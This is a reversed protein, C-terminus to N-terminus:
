RLMKEYSMKVNQIYDDIIKPLNKLENAHTEVEKLLELQQSIDETFHKRKLNFEVLWQISSPPPVIKSVSFMMSELSTRKLHLTEQLRKELYQAWRSFEFFQFCRQLKYGIAEIIKDDIEREFHKGLMLHKKGFRVDVDVKNHIKIRVFGNWEDRAYIGLEELLHFNPIIKILPFVDRYIRQHHKWKEEGKPQGEFALWKAHEFLKRDNIKILRRKLLEDVFRIAFRNKQLRSKFEEGRSYNSLNSGAKSVVFCFRFLRMWVNLHKAKKLLKKFMPTLQSTWEATMQYSKVIVPLELTRRKRAASLLEPINLRNFLYDFCRANDFDVINELELEVLNRKEPQQKRQSTSILKVM